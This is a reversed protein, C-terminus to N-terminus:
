GVKEAIVKLYLHRSSNAESARRTNALQSINLSSLEETPRAPCEIFVNKSDRQNSNVEPPLVSDEVWCNIANHYLENITQSAFSYCTNNTDVSQGNEMQVTPWQENTVFTIGMCLLAKSLAIMNNEITTNMNCQNLRCKASGNDALEMSGTNNVLAYTGRWSSPRRTSNDVLKIRSGALDIPQRRTSPRTM